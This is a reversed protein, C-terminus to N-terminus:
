FIAPKRKAELPDVGLNRNENKECLLKSGHQFIKALHVQSFLLLVVPIAGHLSSM